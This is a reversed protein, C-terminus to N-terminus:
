IVVCINKWKLWPFACWAAEDGCPAHAKLGPLYRSYFFSLLSFIWVSYLQKLSSIFLKQLPLYFVTFFPCPLVFFANRRSQILLMLLLLFSSPVSWRWLFASYLALCKEMNMYCSLCLHSILKIMPIQKKAFPSAQAWLGPAPHSGKRSLHLQSQRHMKRLLEINDARLLAMLTCDQTM